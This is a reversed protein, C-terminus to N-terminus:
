QGLRLEFALGMTPFVISTTHLLEISDESRFLVRARIPAIGIGIHLRLWLWSTLALNMRAEALVDLALGRSTRTEDLGIGRAELLVVDIAACGGLEFFSTLSALGCLSLYPALASVHAGSGDPRTTSAEPYLELGLGLRLARLLQLEGGAHIGLAFGPLADIRGRAGLIFAGELSASPTPPEPLIEATPPASPLTIPHTSTPEEVSEPLQTPHAEIERSVEDVLLGVIVIVGEDLRHCTRSQVSLERTRSVGLVHVQIRVSWGHESESFTVHVQTQPAGLDSIAIGMAREFARQFSPADICASPAEWALAVDARAVAPALGLTMCAAFIWRALYTNAPEGRPSTKAKSM